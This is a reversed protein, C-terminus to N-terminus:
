CGLKCIGVKSTKAGKYPKFLNISMVRGFQAFVGLLAETTAIPSVGAFFVTASAGWQSNAQADQAQPRQQQQQQHRQQHEYQQQLEQQQQHERHAQQQEQLQQQQISNITSELLHLAPDSLPQWGLSCEPSILASPVHMGPQLSAQQATSCALLSADDTSISSTSNIGNSTRLPADQWGDLLSATALPQAPPGSTTSM